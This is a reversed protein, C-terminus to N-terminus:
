NCMRCDTHKHADSNGCWNFKSCWNTCPQEFGRCTQCRAPCAQSQNTTSDATDSEMKISACSNWVQPTQECDWRFSIVYNGPELNSPIQVQDIIHFDFIQTPDTFSVGYGSLGPLPEPFQVEDCVPNGLGGGDLRYCAPIPNKTWQSGKPYTGKTTRNAIFAVRSEKDQGYQVWQEEGVFNLPTEQFCEETLYERGAEPVKCLRYSYGGGHNASIGWAVEVVSGVNWKTVPIDQFPYNEAKPGHSWGGGPCDEGKGRPAGIPCGNPNGGAVGCPSYVPASGPARWPHHRTYDIPFDLLGGRNDDRYTRLSNELTPNHPIFTNNTFWYCSRSDGALDDIYDGTKCQAGDMGVQEKDWWAYPIVMNGHGEVLHVKSIYLLYVPLIVAFSTFREM